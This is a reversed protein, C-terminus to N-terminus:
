AARRAVTIILTVQLTMKVESWSLGGPGARPALGDLGGAGPGTGDSVSDSFASDGVYGGRKSTNFIRDKLDM